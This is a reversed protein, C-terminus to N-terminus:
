IFQYCCYAMAEMMELAREVKGQSIAVMCGTGAQLTFTRLAENVVNDMQEDHISKDEKWYYCFCSLAVKWERDIDLQHLIYKACEYRKKKDRLKQLQIETESSM